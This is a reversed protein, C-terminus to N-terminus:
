GNNTGLQIEINGDIDTRYVTYGYQTLRELTEEAPHGYNNYGSSIVAVGGGVEALLESSSAYKSGHHGVILVDVDSLEEQRTLEREMAQTADATVLMAADGIRLKTMLCRENETQGGPLKYLEMELRGSIATIPGDLLVVRTGNREACAVIDDYLRDSDDADAPLLLMDVPLLEMLRVAGDAHDAHLHTLMLIDIRDRGRSFLYEGALAGANDVSGTNGCDIVATADGAFATICQGQGVSLVTIVDHTRYFRASRVLLLLLVSVSVAAPILMRLARKKRLMGFILFAGCSLWLWLWAGDTQMYLVSYPVSSIGRACLFIFRALWTSLMVFVQGLVPVLSLVCAIWGCSFCASVAWLCAVNTLVSLLPVYGFHIATLPATFIMVSLSSAVTAFVYQVPKADKIWSLKGTMARYIKDFFFLIGAMASFSLQLSVSRAAFPSFGLILALVASLSTIPDNERRVIPALLLLSQMFGARIAAKGAGTVLVFLWVTAISILAGRRGRGFAFQLLSVLFAVHLGSVAVVHMLGARTMSVYLADDNYFEDKDGLMLAKMFIRTDAPFVQDIMACLRHQIRVPVTRLDFSAGLKEIRGQSNLRLFYGNVHYNDYPKGYLTDATSIKATFRLKQGPEAEAMAKTNDYVIAHFHPLGESNLRIHLRCYDDYVDPYDILTGVIERTQGDFNQACISTRQAYVWYDLLGLSFFVLAIVAPRLWKRRLLALAAGTVAALVAPVILWGTPLIYNAAFIALSFALAATALKRMVYGM